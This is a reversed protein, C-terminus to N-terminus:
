YDAFLEPHKEYLERGTMSVRGSEIDAQRKREVNFKAQEREQDKQTKWQRFQDPTVQQAPVGPM